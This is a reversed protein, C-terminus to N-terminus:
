RIMVRDLLKTAGSLYSGIGSPSGGSRIVGTTTM